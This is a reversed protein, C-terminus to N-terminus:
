FWAFRGGLFLYYTWLVGVFMMIKIFRSIAKPNANNSVLMFILPLHLAAVLVVPFSIRLCYAIAQQQFLPFFIIFSHVLLSFLTESILLNKTAKVGFRLPFTKASIAKDGDMDEWDKTIERLLNLLFAFLAMCLALWKFVYKLEFVYVYVLYPSATLFAVLLNGILLSKKLYKAYVFLAIQIAIISLTFYVKDTLWYVFSSFILGDLLLLLYIREAQKVSLYKGVILQDPKNIKDTELDFLDNVVYGAAMTSCFVYIFLVCVLIPSVIFDYERQGFNYTLLFLGALAFALFFLNVPRLIKLAALM